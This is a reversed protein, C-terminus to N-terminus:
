DFCVTTVAAKTRQNWFVETEPKKSQIVDSM